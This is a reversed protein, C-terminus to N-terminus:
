MLLVSQRPLGAVATVGPRCGPLRTKGRQSVAGLVPVAMDVEASLAALQRQALIGCSVHWSARPEAQDFRELLLWGAVATAHCRGPVATGRCPRGCRREAAKRGCDGDCVHPCCRLAGARQGTNDFSPVNHYSLPLAVDGSDSAAFAIL